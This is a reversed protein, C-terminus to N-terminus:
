IGLETLFEHMALLMPRKKAGQQACETLLKRRPRVHRACSHMTVLEELQM